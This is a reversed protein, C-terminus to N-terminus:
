EKERDVPGKRLGAIAAGLLIGGFVPFKLVSLLSGISLNKGGAVRRLSM